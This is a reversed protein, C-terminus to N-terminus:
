TCDSAKDLPYVAVSADLSGTSNTIFDHFNSEIVLMLQKWGSVVQTAMRCEGGKQVLVFNDPKFSSDCNWLYIDSEGKYRFYISENNTGLLVMQTGAPKGGVDVLADATHRTQLYSAKISFLRPSSLYSFYLINGSPKHSLQLYLIDKAGCHAAVVGPLVVRYGTSLALNLVIIAGTGADSIYAFPIMEDSYDVVLFQLRSETSVLTDLNVTKVIKGDEPNLGWIKPGCRRVPQELTNCIGLDLVWLIAMPDMFLDVANQIAECNGEEQITWSAFPKLKPKWLDSDLKFQAITFPVGPRYRPLAVIAKDRFIQLRTAIINRPIYRGTSSYIDLCNQCPFEVNRGSIKFFSEHNQNCSATLIPAIVSTGILLLIM